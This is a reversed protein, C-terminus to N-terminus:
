FLQTFHILTILQKKEFVKESNVDSYKSILIFCIKM